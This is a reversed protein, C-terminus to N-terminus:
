LLIQWCLVKSRMGMSTNLGSAWCVSQRHQGGQTLFGRRETYLRICVNCAVPLSQSQSM